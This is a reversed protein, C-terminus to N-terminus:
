GSSIKFFNFLFYDSFEPLMILCCFLLLTSAHDLPLLTSVYYELLLLTPLRCPFAATPYSAKMAIGCLGEPANVDRQIRMYGNEGWGTGWSNKVIWYRTGNGNETGYGVVTVAHLLKTGCNGTFVGSRYYKFESCSADIVVSVPQQAVAKLLAAENNVPVQKFCSIKAAHSAAKKKNCTGDTGNYPYNSENTLGKNHIIFRFAHDSYGGNCGRNAGGKDCDILEQVSLSILKGTSIKIFGEMAAVASFAWCSGCYKGQTKIPTVAGKNRWDISDPLNQYKDYSVSRPISLRRDGTHSAHFEEKTLDAFKNVKLKYPRDSDRDMNFEKIYETNKKFIEQRKEKELNDKIYDKSLSEWSQSVFIGLAIVVTFLLKSSSVM